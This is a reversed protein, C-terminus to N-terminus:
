LQSRMQDYQERPLLVYRRNSAPDVVDMLNGQEAQLARRQGDTLEINSMAVGPVAPSLPESKNYDRRWAIGAIRPRTSRASRRRRATRRTSSSITATTGRCNPM